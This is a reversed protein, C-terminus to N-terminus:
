ATWAYNRRLAAMAPAAPSCAISRAASAETMSPVAPKPSKCGSPWKMLPTSAPSMIPASPSRTRRWKELLRELATQQEVVDLSCARLCASPNLNHIYKVMERAKPKGLSRYGLVHRVINHEEIREQPREVLLLQVGLRGLETAVRSGGSGLGVVAVKRTPLLAPNLVGMIPRYFETEDIRRGRRLGSVVTQPGREASPRSHVTSQPSNLPTHPDGSNM